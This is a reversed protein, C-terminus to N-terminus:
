DEIKKINHNYYISFEGKLELDKKEVWECALRYAEKEGFTSINFSKSHGKNKFFVNGQYYEYKYIGKKDKTSFTRIVGRHGSTNNKGISHNWDNQIHTAIRLNEKRNDYGIRNKHDVYISKDELKLLLRHMWISKRKRVTKVHERLVLWTYDKIKDYDELDFYFENGKSDYGIGYKGFLDYKNSGTRKCMQEYNWCGCSKTEGNRLLMGNVVCENGCDCKCLFRRQNQSGNEVRKIVTLRNFRKGIMDIARNDISCERCYGVRKKIRCLYLEEKKGCKLCKCLVKIKNYKNEQPNIIKTIKFGSIEKGIIDDNGKIIRRIDCGCSKSTGHILSYKDVNKITGCKCKCKLQKKNNVIEEDGIVTWGNFRKGILDESKGM